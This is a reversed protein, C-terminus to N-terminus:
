VELTPDTKIALGGWQELERVGISAARRSPLGVVVPRATRGRSWRLALALQGLGAPVGPQALAGRRDLLLGQPVEVPRLGVPPTAGM